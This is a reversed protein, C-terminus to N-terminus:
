ARMPRLQDSVMDRFTFEHLDQDGGERQFRVSKVVNRCKITDGNGLITEGNGSILESFPSIAPPSFITALTPLFLTPPPFLFHHNEAFSLM